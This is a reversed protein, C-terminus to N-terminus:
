WSDSPKEKAFKVFEAAPLQGALFSALALILPEGKKIDIMFSREGSYNIALDDSGGRQHM